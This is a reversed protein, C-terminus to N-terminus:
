KKRLKFEFFPGDWPNTEKIFQRYYQQIYLFIDDKNALISKMLWETYTKANKYSLFYQNNNFQFDSLKIQGLNFANKLQHDIICRFPEVLDCILSKRQYFFQHYVGKYIDFGYFLVLAEIYNFLYTYGMDMLVNLPDVKTRPRRGKWEMECFWEKFYIKACFGELGMLEQISNKKNIMKLQENISNISTKLRASKKRISKLLFLQNQIKNSILLRAIDLGDYTYQKVRLLTNGETISGWCGLPKFRTSLFFISFGFRKSKEFIGSTISSPGIIWIALIKYCTIQSVIEQDQNMVLLNDNKIKIRHGDHGFIAIVQKQKFDPFTLM